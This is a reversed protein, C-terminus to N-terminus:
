RVHESRDKVPGSHLRRMTGRYVKTLSHVATGTIFAHLDIAEREAVIERDGAFRFVVERGFETGRRVFNVPAAV